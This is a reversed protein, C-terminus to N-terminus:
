IVVIKSFYEVRCKISHSILCHKETKELAINARGEWKQDIWVCPHLELITFQYCGNVWEVIGTAECELKEFQFRLKDAFVILTSMYCSVISGLFLHEPSWDHGEGGFAAPTAVVLNSDVDDACLKGKKKEVWNLKASFAIQRDVRQANGEVQTM